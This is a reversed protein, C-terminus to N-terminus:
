KIYESQLAHVQEIYHFLMQKEFDTKPLATPSKISNIHEQYRIELDNELDAKYKKM